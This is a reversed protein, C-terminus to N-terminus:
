KILEVISNRLQKYETHLSSKRQSDNMKIYKRLLKDRRQMCTRIGHTIWPKYRRRHEVNKVKELPMFKDIIPEIATQFNKLALNADMKKHFTIEIEM